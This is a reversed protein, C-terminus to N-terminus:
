AREKKRQFAFEFMTRYHQATESALRTQISASSQNALSELLKPDDLLQQIAKRLSQRSRQILLGNSEHQVVEPVIGVKTSIVPRGCALAEVIPLPGGEHKSTCILVHNSRYFDGMSERAVPSEPTATHLTVQEADFSDVVPQVISSFGKNDGHHQVSPNGVWMLRLPGREPLPSPFFISSEVGNPTFFGRDLQILGGLEKSIYGTAAFQNCVLSVHTKDLGRKSWSALSHIGVCTKDFEFGSVLPGYRMADFWLFFYVVDYSSFDYKKVDRRLDVIYCIDILMNSLHQKVSRALIDYAWGPRDAIMLVKM